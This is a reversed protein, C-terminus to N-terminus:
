GDQQQIAHVCAEALECMSQIYLERTGQYTVVQRQMTNSTWTRASVSLEIGYRQAIPVSLAYTM